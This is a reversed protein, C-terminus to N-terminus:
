GLIDPWGGHRQGLDDSLLLTLKLANPECIGLRVPLQESPNREAFGSCLWQVIVCVRPVRHLLFEPIAEAFNMPCAILQDGVM